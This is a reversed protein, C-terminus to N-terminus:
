DISGYRLIVAAMEADTLKTALQYERTNTCQKGHVYWETIGNRILAPGDTRHREGFLFWDESGDAQVLAPGDERHLRNCHYWATAGPLGGYCAPGGIRHREGNFYWMEQGDPYVVAPGDTRHLNGTRTFWRQVGGLGVEPESKM